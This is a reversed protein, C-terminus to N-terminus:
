QGMQGCAQLLGMFHFITALSVPLTGSGVTTAEVPLQQLRFGMSHSAHWLPVQSPSMPRRWLLQGGFLPEMRWQCDLNCLWQQSVERGGGISSGTQPQLITSVSHSWESSVRRTQAPLRVFPPGRAAQKSAEWGEVDSAECLGLLEPGANIGSRTQVGGAWRRRVPPTSVMVAHAGKASSPLASPAFIMGRILKTPTRSCHPEARLNGSALEPALGTDEM